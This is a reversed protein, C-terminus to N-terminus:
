ATSSRRRAPSVGCAGSWLFSLAGGPRLLGLSKEPFLSFSEGSKVAAASNKRWAPIKGGGCPPNTAIADIAGRLHNTDCGPEGNALERLSDLCRIDPIFGLDPYQLLINLRAIDVAAPDADFGHIHEPALGFRAAARVLYRGTGCCPDLFSSPRM